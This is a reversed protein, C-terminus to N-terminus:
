DNLWAPGRKWEPPRNLKSYVPCAIAPVTDFFRKADDMHDFAQEIRLPRDNDRTEVAYCGGAHDLRRATATNSAYHHITKIV